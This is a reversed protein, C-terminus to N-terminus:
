STSVEGDASDAVGETELAVRETGDAAATPAHHEIHEEIQDIIGMVFKRETRGLSLVDQSLSVTLTAGSPLAFGRLSHIAGQPQQPLGARGDDPESGNRGTRPRGRRSVSAGARPSKWLPSKQVGAYDCASLYFRIAKTRSQGSITPFMEGFVADLEGPTANTVGLEVAKPYYRRLLEAIREPRAEPQTALERLEDTVTLDDRILGFGKFAGILYSKMGGQMSGLYSRDMKNPLDAAIKEVSNLFTAWAVNYPPTFDKPQETMNGGKLTTTRETQVRTSYAARKLVTLPYESYEGVKGRSLTLPMAWWSSM